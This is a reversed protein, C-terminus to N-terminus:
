CTPMGLPANLNTYVSNVYAGNVLRYWMYSSGHGASSRLDGPTQCGVSVRMGDKLDNSYKRPAENYPGTRQQV